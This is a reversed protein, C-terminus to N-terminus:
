KVLVKVGKSAYDAYPLFLDHKMEIDFRSSNFLELDFRRFVAALTLYIEAKALPMGACQRGGRGFTTFFHELPRGDPTKGDIWREPIFENSNPYISEDHHTMPTTMGVPVGPPIIYDGYRMPEYAIRQSRLSVGYSLRLGEMIVASLYPLRELVLLSTRSKPDPMAEKLELRLKYLKEPNDLLHFTTTNLAHATTDLGAGVILQAEQGLRDLTKEQPPLDSNLLEHFITPMGEVKYKEKDSESDKQIDEIQKKVGGTFLFIAGMQPSLKAVLSEPLSRLIPYMWPVHKFIVGFAAIDKIAETFLPNFNPDDLANSEKGMSYQMIVDTTLCAYALRTPLPEGSVRHDEFRSCLKEVLDWITGELKLLRQKSFFPNLAARRIRHLSHHCASFTSEDAGFQRTLFEWKDRPASRTYLIDLFNPDNVHIEYPSIRVIPGIDNLKRGRIITGHGSVM